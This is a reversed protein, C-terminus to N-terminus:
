NDNGIGFKVGVVYHLNPTGGGKSFCIEEVAETILERSSLGGIRLFILEAGEGAYYYSGM